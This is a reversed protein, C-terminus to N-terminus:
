SDFSVVKGAFDSDSRHITTSRDRDCCQKVRVPVTELVVDCHRGARVPVTERVASGIGYRKRVPWSERPFLRQREMESASGTDRKCNLAKM